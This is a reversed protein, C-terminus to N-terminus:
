GPGPQNQTTPTHMVLVNKATMTSHQDLTREYDEPSLHGEKSDIEWALGVEDFWADAIALLRPLPRSCSFALPTAPESM